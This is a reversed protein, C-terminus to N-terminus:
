FGFEKILDEYINQAVSKSNPMTMIESIVASRVEKKSDANKLVVDDIFSKIMEKTSLVYHADICLQGYKHLPRRLEDESGSVYGVPKNLYVYEGTFSGCNHIMADSTKFLDIYEGLEIQTNYMESWAKYYEDTKKRGWLPHKYLESKLRPHPKFAFQAKDKLQMALELMYDSIGLFEPRNFMDNEFIQFHPAWIIKKRKLGDPMVKWPDSNAKTALEDFRPEGAVVINEGRNDSHNCAEKLHIESPLYQRWALNHFKQNYGWSPSSLGLNYPVYGILHHMNNSWDASENIMEGYPQPYFILDPNFSKELESYDEDTQIVKYPIGNKSFLNCLGDVDKEQSEKSYCIFPSIAIMVSFRKDKVLLECIGEYRWMSISSAIFLVNASGRQRIERIVSRYIRKQAPVRYIRYYRDLRKGEPPLFSWIKNVIRRFM